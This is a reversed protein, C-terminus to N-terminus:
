DNSHASLLALPLILCAITLICSLVLSVQLDTSFLFSFTSFLLPTSYSFVLSFFSLSTQRHKCLILTSEILALQSYEIIQRDRTGAEMLGRLKSRLLPCM